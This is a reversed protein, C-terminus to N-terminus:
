VIRAPGVCVYGTSPRAFHSITVARSLAIPLALAALLQALYM